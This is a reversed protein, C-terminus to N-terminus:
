TIIKNIDPYIELITPQTLLIKKQEVTLDLNDIDNNNVFEQNIQYTRYKDHDTNPPKEQPTDINDKIKNLYNKNDFIADTYILGISEFIARLYQYNNEFMDEYRILYLNKAKNKRYYAFKEASKIYEAVDCKSPINNLFRKNLSSFVWLPNRIIFIKIYDKYTDSFIDARTYPTKCLVYKKGSRTYKDDIIHTESIIECVEEIHGIISKLISTGSHPFGFIIIKQM